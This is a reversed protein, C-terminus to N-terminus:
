QFYHKIPAPLIMNGFTFIPFLTITPAPLTTDRDIGSLQTANPDGALIM